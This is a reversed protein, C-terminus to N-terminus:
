DREAPGGVDDVLRALPGERRDRLRRPDRRRVGAPHRLAPEERRLVPPVDDHGSVVLRPDVILLVRDRGDGDVPRLPLDGRDDNRAALARRGFQTLARLVAISSATPMFSILLIKATVSARPM